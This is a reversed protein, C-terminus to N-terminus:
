NAELNKEQIILTHDFNHDTPKLKTVENENMKRM